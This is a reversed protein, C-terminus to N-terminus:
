PLAPLEPPGFALEGTQAFRVKRKGVPTAFTARGEIRFRHIGSGFAQLRAPTTARNPTLPLAVTATGKPLSVSSDRDLWGVTLGDLVLWLEVRTTSLTLDNPNRLDLVVMVPSADEGKANVRVRSMTVGPDEYVWLGLPTCAGVAVIWWVQWSWRM